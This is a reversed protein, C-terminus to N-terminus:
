SGESDEDYEVKRFSSAATRLLISPDDALRPVLYSVQKEPLVSVRQVSRDSLSKVGVDTTNPDYTVYAM